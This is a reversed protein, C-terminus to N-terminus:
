YYKGYQIQGYDENYLNFSNADIFEQEDMRQEICFNCIGDILDTMQEEEDCFPDQCFGYTYM